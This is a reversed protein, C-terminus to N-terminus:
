PPPVGERRPVEMPIGMSLAALIATRIELYARLAEQLEPLPVPEGTNM